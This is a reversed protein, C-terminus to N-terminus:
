GKWNKSTIDATAVTTLVTLAHDDANPFVAVVTGIFKRGFTDCAVEDGVAVPADAALEVLQEVLEKASELDSKANELVSAASELYDIADEIDTTWTEIDSILSTLDDVDSMDPETDFDQLDSLDTPENQAQEQNGLASGLHEKVDTMIEVVEETMKM